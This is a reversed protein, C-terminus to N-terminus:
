LGNLQLRPKRQSAAPTEDLTIDLPESVASTKKIPARRTIPRRPQTRRAAGPAPASERVPETGLQAAGVPPANTAAVDATAAAAPATVASTVSVQPQKRTQAPSDPSPSESAAHPEYPARVGRKDDPHDAGDPTYSWAAWALASLTGCVLTALLWPRARRKGSGDTDAGRRTAFPELAESFAAVSPFRAAPERHMARAVATVLGPPLEPVLRDLPTAGGREIKLVLETYGIAEYPRKGSLMEYLTVGLAYVDVREDCVQGQLQEPAMYYPTGTVVGSRKDTIELADVATLRSIGFDLVKPYPQAGEAKCLFINAPKLDRHVVGTAHAAAVGAACPLMVRCAQEADLCGERALRSALSEGELLEMVLFIGDDQHIDFVDVVHPHRIRGAIQAERVFRKVDDAGETGTSLLWKIAFRRGTVQHTAEFVAGMGGAGIERDIRYKGGVLEGNSPRTSSPMVRSSAVLSEHTAHHSLRRTMDAALHPLTTWM